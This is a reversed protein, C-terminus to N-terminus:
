EKDKDLLEKLERVWEIPIPKKVNSYREMADLIDAIRLNDWIYKPKLGLVPQEYCVSEFKEANM